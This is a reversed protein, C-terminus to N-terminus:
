ELMLGHIIVERVEGGSRTRARMTIDEKLFAFASPGQLSRLEMTRILAGVDEAIKALLVAEDKRERDLVAVAELRVGIRETGGLTALVAPLPRLVGLTLGAIDAKHPVPAISTTRSTMTWIGLGAGSLVALVTAAVISVLAIM